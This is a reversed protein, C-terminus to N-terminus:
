LDLYVHRYFDDRLEKLVVDFAKVLANSILNHTTSGSAFINFELKLLLLFLGGMSLYYIIGSVWAM